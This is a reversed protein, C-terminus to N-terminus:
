SVLRSPNIPVLFFCAEDDDLGLLPLSLSVTAIVTVITHGHYNHRNTTTTIALYLSTM